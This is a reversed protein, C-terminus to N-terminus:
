AKKAPKKNIIQHLRQGMQQVKPHSDQKWEMITRQTMNVFDHTKDRNSRQGFINALKKMTQWITRTRSEDADILWRRINTYCQLPRQRAVQTLIHSIKKQVEESEDDLLKSVFSLTYQPNKSAINEMGHMAMARKAEDPSDAWIPMYERMVEPFRKWMEFCITESEWPVTKYTKELTKIILEPTNQRKYYFYFLATARIGYFNDELMESAILDLEGLGEYTALKKGLEERVFYNATNAMELIQKKALTTKNKDLNRFIKEVHADMLKYDDINLRGMSKIM